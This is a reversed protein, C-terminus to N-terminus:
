TPRSIGFAKMKCHITSRGMGLTRAAKSANWRASQLAELITQREDFGLCSDLRRTVYIVPKIALTLGLATIRRGDGTLLAQQLANRLERVNGPWHHKAIAEQAERSIEVEHGALNRAVVMALEHPKERERLPPLTVAAGSVMYFLNDQMEGTAMVDKLPRRSTAIIQPRCGSVDVKMEFDDLVNCLAVQAFVPMKDLDDFVLVMGHSPNKHTEEVIRVQEMLSRIYFRDDESDELIACNIKIIPNSEGVLVSCLASKGTGTEGEILLPLGHELSNQARECIAVMALSGATMDKLSPSLRRRIAPKTSKRRRAPFVKAAAVPMRVWLDLLPGTDRRASLIRGPSRDLSQIDTGFVADFQEGTLAAHTAIGALTHADSTSGLITGQDDVAVLEGDKIVERRGPVAVSIIAADKFAQEFLTHQVRSAAARLLQRSFHADAPFGRDISSLNAVGFIENGADRLPVASCTFHRLRSYFHNPGRVTFARSEELAMSVGNTGAVREDWISGLAIGNWETGGEKCELRVLIGDMDAVVLCHGADAAISALRYFIGHRGGTREIMAERRPLIESSQLRLMPHTSDRKLNFQHQCRAWSLRIADEFGAEAHLNTM